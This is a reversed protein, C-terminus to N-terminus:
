CEVGNDKMMSRKALFGLSKEIFLEKTFVVECLIQNTINSKAENSM